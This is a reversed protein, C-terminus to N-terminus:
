EIIELNFQEITGHVTGIGMVNAANTAQDESTQKVTLKTFPPIIVTLPQSFYPTLPVTTGNDTKADYIQVDDLFIKVGMEASVKANRGGQFKMKIFESATTFEIMTAVENTALSRIGSYVYCFKNDPTFQLSGVGQFTGTM